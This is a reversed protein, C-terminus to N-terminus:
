FNYCIELINFPNISKFISFSSYYQARDPGFSCCGPAPPRGHEHALLGLRGALPNGLGRGVRGPWCRKAGGLVWGAMASGHWGSMAACAQRTTVARVAWTTARDAAARRHIPPPSTGPHLVPLSPRLRRALNSSTPTIPRCRPPLCFRRQAIVAIASPHEPHRHNHSEACPARPSQEEALPSSFSLSCHLPPTEGRIASAACSVKPPSFV